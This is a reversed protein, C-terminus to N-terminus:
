QQNNILLALNLRGRTATKAYIASLHAKVTRETIDLQAAIELNSLGDAVLGAIQYERNSLKELAPHVTPEAQKQETSADAQRGAAILRQMLKQNIWVAGSAIANTAEALRQNNIYSNAYGVVGIRLYALGEEDNPRDSLIFIRSDPLATRLKQITPFDMMPQHFLLVEFPTEQLLIKLDQLTTAQYVVHHSRLASDWGERISTTDCCLLINM